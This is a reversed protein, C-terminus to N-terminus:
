NYIAVPAMSDVGHLWAGKNEESYLWDYPFDVLHGRVNELLLVADERTLLEEHGTFDRRSGRTTARRRRRLTGMTGLNSTSSPTMSARDPKELSTFTARRQKSENATQAQLLGNATNSEFAPFPTDGPPFVPSPAEHQRKQPSPISNMDSLSPKGVTSKQVINLQHLSHSTGPRLTEGNSHASAGTHGSPVSLVLKPQSHTARLSTGREISVDPASSPPFGTSTTGPRSSDHSEFMSKKFRTAYNDWAAYDAFTQVESDPQCRFVRRFVKTNNEAVRNWIDTYFAPNLPDKMCDRDIQPQQVDAVLPNPLFPVPNGNSDFQVPPGGIDTDDSLPLSPLLNTRPLGLQETTRRDFPPMPPMVEAIRKSPSGQHGNRTPSSVRRRHSRSPSSLAKSGDRALDSLLVERGDIIISDRGSDLGLKQAIKWGDQGYGEVEREHAENGIVRGDGKSVSKDKDDSGDGFSETLDVDHNYSHSRNVSPRRLTPTTPQPENSSGPETPLIPVKDRNQSYTSLDEDSFELDSETAGSFQSDTGDLEDIDLGLHERMLRIRLTHAFRGVLYPKGAMYSSIMDTDRVIAATESDRDGLMSRENINASGILAVRDDVIIIKAHIYLQETVLAQQPGIKGWARLSFFQIYDEPEIGDARLRGFISHEGRCISRYQLQLIIRVSSGQNETVSSEFGPMLPILIVCKWDEGYTHARKIRSVLADGIRNHVPSNLTNTSTVFFQNEMYVFHQSDEIMKVYAAQISMEVDEIGLSWQGASRLIQVECTGTAEDSKFDPPPLLVPTPRTPKRGARIYNWRQVFHRTLDRAPQGILQMGVDHWPMRPTELRNYMDAYPEHLRFFDSVRPNSYDKGPFLQCQEPDKPRTADDFGTVKDDTVPHQPCDWRGFCLDIGSVFAIEHDVIVLKEHHAYFFQNKKFQHPSRQVFINPHLNLLSFKTYESDIPIAAEVNRYVIIFVKVGEKAKAQLLRDLRWKQSMAAPRRLYLEPSLWWDHIYIVDKAAALARSVCWMYDRGDVLWQAHINKRVPAFSGFRNEQNWGTIKLMDVVSEEFQRMIAQNSSFLKIKRETNEITITHHKRPNASRTLDIEIGKTSDGKAKDSIQKLKSRKSVIRFKPDVLFVDHIDMNEPSDVCVIYSQRVLFWKRSQGSLVKGPMLLNRFDIGKASHLHLYCEKGHYSGEVALRVGLASLELFKCLRNSDARFMLWRIMEQLYKELRRRQDLVFKKKAAAERAAVLEPDMFDGVESLATSRRRAAMINMKSRKRRPRQRRERDSGSQEAATQEGATAEGATEDARVSPAYLSQTRPPQSQNDEENDSELGRVNRLYPFSSMPFKPQRLGKSTLRPYIYQDNNLAIKYRFHMNLIDRLTRKVQWKMRFPGNGYELAITFIWHRDEDGEAPTSDVVRLNLQELLVPIRKHGHEDRQIMSALMLVAPAGARLEALLEASKLYDFPREKPPRLAKFTNKVQQWKAAGYTTARESAGFFPRRPTVDADSMGGGGGLTTLSRLHGMRRREPAREGPEGDAISHAFTSVWSHGRRMNERALHERGEGESLGARHDETDAMTAARRRLFALRPAIPSDFDNVLGPTNPVSM